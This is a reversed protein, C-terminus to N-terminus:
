DNVACPSSGSGSFYTRKSNQTRWSPAIIRIKMAPLAPQSSYGAVKEVHLASAGKVLCTLGERGALLPRSHV